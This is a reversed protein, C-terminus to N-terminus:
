PVTFSGQLRRLPAAVPAFSSVFERWFAFLGFSQLDGARGQQEGAAVDAGDGEVAGGQRRPGESWGEESCLHSAM